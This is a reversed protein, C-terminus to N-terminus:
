MMGTQIQQTLTLGDLIGLLDDVHPEPSDEKM